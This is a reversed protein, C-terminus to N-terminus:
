PYLRRLRKHLWDLWETLSEAYQQGQVAYTSGTEDSLDALDRKLGLLHANVQSATTRWRGVLADAEEVDSSDFTMSTPVTAM